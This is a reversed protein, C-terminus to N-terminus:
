LHIHEPVPGIWRLVRGVRLRPLLKHCIRHSRFCHRVSCGRTSGTHCEGLSISKVQHNATSCTPGSTQLPLKHWRSCWFHCATPSPTRCLPYNCPPHWEHHHGRKNVLYRVNSAKATSAFDEITLRM